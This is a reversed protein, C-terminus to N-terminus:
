SAGIRTIVILRRACAIVLDEDISDRLGQGLAM